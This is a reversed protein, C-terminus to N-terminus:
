SHHFLKESFLGLCKLTSLFHSPPTATIALPAAARRPFQTLNVQHRHLFLRSRDVPSLSLDSTLCAQLKAPLRQPGPPAALPSTPFPAGMVTHTRASYKTDGLVPSLYYSLIAELAGWKDKNVTVRVLAAGLDSNIALPEVTHPLLMMKGDKRASQSGKEHIVSMELGHLSERAVCSHLPVGYVCQPIGVTIALYSMFLVKQAAAKSLFKDLSAKSESTKSLLVVGSYFSKLSLGIELDSCGFNVALDPLLQSVSETATDANDKSDKREEEAYNSKGYVSFYQPKNLALVNEDEYIVQCSINSDSGSLARTSSNGRHRDKVKAQQRCCGRTLGTHHTHLACTKWIAVGVPYYNVPNNLSFGRLLSCMIKSM